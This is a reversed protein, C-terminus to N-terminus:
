RNVMLVPWRGEALALRAVSGLRGLVLLDCGSAEAARVLAEGVKRSIALQPQWAVGAADALPVVLDLAAQAASLDDSGAAVSLGHLPLGCAAAMAVATQALRILTDRPTNPDLALMVGRTWMGADRPVMLVSCPAQEAVRGVMEGVVLRALLGRRGRQRVVLLDSGLARAEEVIERHLEPGRRVRPSLVVGAALAMQQLWQLRVAVEAEARAAQQPAVTEFEANSAVPLVAALPVACHQAMALAVREAGADHETHETALLPREFPPKM